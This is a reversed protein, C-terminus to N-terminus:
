QELIGGTEKDLAAKLVNIRTQDDTISHAFNIHHGGKGDPVIAIILSPCGYEALTEVMDQATKGVDITKKPM